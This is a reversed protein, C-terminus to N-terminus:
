PNMLVLRYVQKSTQLFYTDNPLENLSLKSDSEVEMKMVLQGSKNLVNVWTAALEKPLKIEGSSPNPYLQKDFSILPFIGANGQDFELAGLNTNPQLRPLFLHDFLITSIPATSVFLPNTLSPTVEALSAAFNPLQNIVVDTAANYWPVQTSNYLNNSATLGVQPSISSVCLQGNNLSDNPASIINRSVHINQFSVNPV